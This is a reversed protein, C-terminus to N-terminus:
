QENELDTKLNIFEKESILFPFEPFETRRKVLYYLFLTSLIESPTVESKRRFRLKEAYLSLLRMTLPPIVIRMENPIPAYKELKVAKEKVASHDQQLETLETRNEALMTTLEDILQRDVGSAAKEEALERQAKEALERVQINEATLKEIKKLDEPQSQNSKRLKLSATEALAMMIERGTITTDSLDRDPLLEPILENLLSLDEATVRAAFQNTEIPFKM